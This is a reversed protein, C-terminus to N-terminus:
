RQFLKGVGAFMDIVAAGTKIENIKSEVNQPQTVLAGPHKLVIDSLASEKGAVKVMAKFTRRIFDPDVFLPTCDRQVLQLATADDVGLTEKLRRFRWRVDVRRCPTTMYVEREAAKPFQKQFAKWSDEAAVEDDREQEDEADALKMQAKEILDQIPQLLSPDLKLRWKVAADDDELMMYKAYLRQHTDGPEPETSTIPRDQNGKAEILGKLMVKQEPDLTSMLETVKAQDQDKMGVLERYVRIVQRGKPSVDQIWVSNLENEEDTELFKARRIHRQRCPHGAVQGAFAPARLSGLFLASPLAVLLGAAFLRRLSTKVGVAM